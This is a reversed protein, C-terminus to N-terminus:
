CLIEKLFSGQYFWQCKIAFEQFDWSINWASATVIRGKKKKSFLDKANELVM